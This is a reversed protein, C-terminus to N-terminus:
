FGTLRASAREQTLADAPWATLQLITAFLLSMNDGILAFGMVVHRGPDVRLGHLCRVGPRLAALLHMFGDGHAQRGVLGHLKPAHDGGVALVCARKGSLQLPLDGYPRFGVGINM